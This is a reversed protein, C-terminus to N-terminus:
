AAQSTIFLIADTILMQQAGSQELNDLLRGIRSTNIGM